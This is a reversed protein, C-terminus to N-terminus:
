PTSKFIFNTWYCIEVFKKVITHDSKKNKCKNIQKNYNNPNICLYM